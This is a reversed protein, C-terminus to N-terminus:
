PASRISKEGSAATPPRSNWPPLIAPANMYYRAYRVFSEGTDGYRYRAHKNVDVQTVVGAIVEEQGREFLRADRLLGLANQAMDRRTSGWKVVFLIKDVFTALLRAETVALLPPGDVVIFNYSGRLQSLLRPLEGGTFPLLPDDPRQRIPLVDLGLQPMTEIAAMCLGDQPVGDLVGSKMKGAIERWIAPRRFDLDILAVRRGILAAYVALSVALTTKGERPVSSTILVAQPMARPVALQLSAALSRIAEAYPAFPRSLLHHHPRMRRTRRVEPILGICPVGLTERIDRASRLGQDLRDRIAALLIGGILFTVMAPLPFLLPNVSSPRDPPSALSLIRVAPSIMEQQEILEERRQLLNEYVQRFTAAGRELDQLHAEATRSQGSSAQVRALQARLTQLQLAATKVQADLDSEARRVEGAISGRLARLQALVEQTRPHMEGLTTSLQAKTQLLAIERDSLEQLAPSDVIQLLSDTGAGRHQLDHVADLRAQRAGLAADAETVRRNLDALRQDVTDTQGAQALGHETRYAQAAAEVRDVEGKLEPIRKDIWALARQTTERKQNYLTDAYLQAVRNAARAAEEPNTSTFSVGLVHSGQEQFVLLHRKFAEISQGARRAAAAPVPARPPSLLNLVPQSVQAWTEALWNTVIRREADLFRRRHAPPSVPQLPPDHALSDLVRELHGRSTLGVVYSEITPEDELVAMASLQGAIGGQSPPETMLEATATYRPPILLGVVGGLVAGVLACILIPRGRRRLLRAVLRFPPEPDLPLDEQRQRAAAFELALTM